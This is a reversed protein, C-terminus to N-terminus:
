LNLVAIAMGPVGGHEIEGEKGKDCQPVDHLQVLLRIVNGNTRISIAIAFCHV